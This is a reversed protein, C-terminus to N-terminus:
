FKNLKQLRIIYIKKKSLYNLSLVISHHEIDSGIWNSIAALYYLFNNEVFLNAHSSLHKIICKRRKNNEPFYKKIKVRRPNLGIFDIYHSLVSFCNM